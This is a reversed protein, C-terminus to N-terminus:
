ILPFLKLPKKGRAEHWHYIYNNHWRNIIDVQIICKLAPFSFVLHDRVVILESQSSGPHIDRNEESLKNEKEFQLTM